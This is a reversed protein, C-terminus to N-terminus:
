KMRLEIFKILSPIEYVFSNRALIAEIDNSSIKEFDLYNILTLATQLSCTLQNYDLWDILRELLITENRKIRKDSICTMLKILLEKDLNVFQTQKICKDLNLCMFSFLYDFSLKLNLKNSIKLAQFIESSKSNLLFMECKNILENIELEQACSVIAEVNEISLELQNKYVYKLVNEIGISSTAKLVM